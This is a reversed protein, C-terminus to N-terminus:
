EGKGRKGGEGAELRLVVQVEWREVKGGEGRM